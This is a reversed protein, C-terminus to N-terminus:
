FARDAECVKGVLIGMVEGKSRGLKSVMGISQIRPHLKTQLKCSFPDDVAIQVEVIDHAIFVFFTSM